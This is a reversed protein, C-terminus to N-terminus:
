RPHRRARYPRPPNETARTSTIPAPLRLGKPIFSHDRCAKLFSVHRETLYSTKKALTPATPGFLSSLTSNFSAGVLDSALACDRSKVKRGRVGFGYGLVRVRVWRRFASFTGFEDM